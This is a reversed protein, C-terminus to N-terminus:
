CCALCNIVSLMYSFNFFDNTLEKNKRYPEGLNFKEKRSLNLEDFFLRVSLRVFFWYLVLLM